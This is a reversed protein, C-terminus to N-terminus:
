RRPRHADTVRGPFASLLCGGRKRAEMHPTTTFVVLAEITALSCAAYVVYFVWSEYEGTFLLYVAFVYAMAGATKASYLHLDAIRRFRLWGVALTLMAFGLWAMIWTGKELFLHPRFIVLWAMTSGMLALDAISDLQSGFRTSTRTLRAIMGDAVDTAGAIAVGVAVVVRQGGFAAGWLAVVLILRLASLANPITLLEGRTSRAM